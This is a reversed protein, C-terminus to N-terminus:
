YSVFCKYIILLTLCLWDILHILWNFHVCKSCRPVQTRRVLNPVVSYCYTFFYVARYTNVSLARIEDHKRMGCLSVSQTNIEGTSRRSNSFHFSHIFMPYHSYSTLVSYVSRLHGQKTSGNDEVFGEIRKREGRRRREGGAREKQM